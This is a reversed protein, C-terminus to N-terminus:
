KSNKIRNGNEWIQFRSLFKMNKGRFKSQLRGILENQEDIRKLLIEVDDNPKSSSSKGGGRSAAAM